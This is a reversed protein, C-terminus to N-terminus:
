SIARRIREQEPQGAGVSETDANATNEITEPESEQM